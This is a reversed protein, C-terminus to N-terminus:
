SGEMWRGREEMKRGLEEWRGEWIQDITRQNQNTEEWGLGPPSAPTM